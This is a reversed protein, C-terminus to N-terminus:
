RQEKGLYQDLFRTLREEYEGPRTELAGVHDAEPVGWIAKPEGAARYFATNFRREEGGGVDPAHILM